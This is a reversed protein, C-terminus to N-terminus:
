SKTKPRGPGRRTEQQKVETTETQTDAIKKIGTIDPAAVQGMIPNIITKQPTLIKVHQHFYDLANAGNGLTINSMLDWLEYINANRNSIIRFLRRKDIADIRNLRIFFLGQPGNKLIAIETLTGKNDLDCWGIHPYKGKIVDITM